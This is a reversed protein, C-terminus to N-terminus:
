HMLMQLLVQGVPPLAVVLNVLERVGCTATKACLSRVHSRVTSVAVRMRVAIEPTSFGECLVGLVQQETPTLGHRRAFMGFMLTECVTSRGFVLAVHASAGDPAERLPVVALQLSRGDGALTILSRKGQAAQALAAQLLRGDAPNCTQLGERALGLAGLRGLEARAARNVYQVQGTASVLVVGHVLEDVLLTMLAPGTETGATATPGAAMAIPAVATNYSSMM